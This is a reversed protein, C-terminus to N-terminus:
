PTLLIRENYRNKGFRVQLFYTGQSLNSLETSILQPGSVAQGQQEYVVQGSANRVEIQYLGSEQANMKLVGTGHSPNPYFSAKFSPLAATQTSWIDFRIDDFIAYSNLSNIDEISSDSVMLAITASDPVGTFAPNYTIDESIETFGIHSVADMFQVSGVISDADWVNVWIIAVDGKELSSKLTGRISSYRQNIAFSPTFVDSESVSTGPRISLLIGPLTDMEASEGDQITIGRIECALSGGVGSNSKTSNSILSGENSYYLASSVWHTPYEVNSGHWNEFSYNPITPAASNDKLKFTIADIDISGSSYPGFVADASAIWIYASDAVLNPTGSIYNIPFSINTWNGSNGTLEGFGLAILEGAKLFGVQVSATDGGLLPNFMVNFSDPTAAYSFASTFYASTDFNAQLAYSVGQSQKNKFRLAAGTKGSVKTFDGDLSWNEPVVKSQTSWNEFGGNPVQASAWNMCGFLMAILISSKHQTIKM